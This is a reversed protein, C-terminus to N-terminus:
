RPQAHLFRQIHGNMDLVQLVISSKADGVTQRFELESAPRIGNISMVIDGPELLFVNGNDDWCNTAASGSTVSTVEFGYEHQRIGIGLKRYEVFSGQLTTLDGDIRISLIPTEVRFVREEYQAVLVTKTVSRTETYPIQVQYTQTFVVGNIVVERTRTENRCVTVDVESTQTQPTLVRVTATRTEARSGLAIEPPDGSSLIKEIPFWGFHQERGRSDKVMVYHNGSHIIDVRQSQADQIFPRPSQWRETAKPWLWFTVDHGLSNTVVITEKQGHNHCWIGITFLLCFCLRM